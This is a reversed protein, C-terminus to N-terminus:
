VSSSNHEEKIKGFTEMLNDWDKETYAEWYELWWRKERSLVVSPGGLTTMQVALALVLSLAKTIEPCFKRLLAVDVSPPFVTIMGETCLKVRDCREIERGQTIWNEFGEFMGCALKLHEVNVNMGTERDDDSSDLLTPSLLHQLLAWAVVFDMVRLGNRGERKMLTKMCLLVQVIIETNLAPFPVESDLTPLGSALERLVESLWDYFPPPVEQSNLIRLLSEVYSAKLASHRDQHLHLYYTSLIDRKQHETPSFRDDMLVRLTANDILGDLYFGSVTHAAASLELDSICHYIPYVADVSQTFTDNIWQLGHIIDESDRLKKATGRVVEEADRLQRWRMDFTMWNLDVASKVLRHFRHSENSRRLNLSNILWFMTHGLRYALWSQPSKYPCQYVRLHKSAVLAHQVAPLATTVILFILVIGVVASVCAAVVTNRSWLLDLLGVFFLVLAAQLMVPLASLIEPVHWALLGEYRM